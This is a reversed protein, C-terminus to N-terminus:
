YITSERDAYLYTSAFTELDLVILLRQLRFNKSSYEALGGLARLTPLADRGERPCSCLEDTVIKRFVTAKMLESPRFQEFVLDKLSGHLHILFVIYAGTQLQEVVGMIISQQEM